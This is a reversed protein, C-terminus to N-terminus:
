KKYIFDYIIQKTKFKLVTIRLFMASVNIQNAIEKISFVDKLDLYYYYAFNYKDKFKLKKFIIIERASTAYGKPNNKFLKRGQITLGDDRYECYYIIENFWRIKYGDNAIRNYVVSETIFNEGEYEPFKYQKLIDTYFVESKDGNINYEDRQLSTADIFEGEFTSGVIKKDNFAKLGSVGAYTNKEKITSDFYIIKEVADNTLWDDNDVIFFMEGRAYDLGKNIARHKGGNKQYIYIIDFDNNELKWNDFLQNVNETSGDDVVLWEFNKNTQNKLSTYLKNITDKRNYVPTFITIM